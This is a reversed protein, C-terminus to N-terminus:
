LDALEDLVKRRKSVKKSTGGLLGGLFDLFTKGKKKKKMDKKESARVVSGPDDKLAAALSKGAMKKEQLFKFGTADM